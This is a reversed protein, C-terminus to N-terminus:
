NDVSSPPYIIITTYYIIYEQGATSISNLRLTGDLLYKCIWYGIRGALLWYLISYLYYQLQKGFSHEIATGGSNSRTTTSSSSSSSTAAASIEAKDYSLLHM